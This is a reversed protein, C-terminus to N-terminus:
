TSRLAGRVLGASALTRVLWGITSGWVVGQLGWRSGFIAGAIGIGVSVIGLTSLQTLRENPVLATAAAGAFGHAVRVLGAFLAVAILGLPLTFKTGLLWQSVPQLFILLLLAALAVGSLTSPSLKTM